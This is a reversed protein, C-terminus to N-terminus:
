VNQRILRWGPLSDDFTEKLSAPSNQTTRQALLHGTIIRIPGTEAVRNGIAGSRDSVALLVLTSCGGSGEAESALSLIRRWNVISGTLRSTTNRAISRSLPSTM